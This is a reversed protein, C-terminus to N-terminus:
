SEGEVIQMAEWIVPGTGERVRRELEAHAQYQEAFRIAQAECSALIRDLWVRGREAIDPGLTAGIGMATGIALAVLVERGIKRERPENDM